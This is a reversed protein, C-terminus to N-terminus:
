SMPESAGTLWSSSADEMLSSVSLVYRTTPESALAFLWNSAKAIFTVVAPLTTHHRRYVRVPPPM